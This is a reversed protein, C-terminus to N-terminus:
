SFYEYWARKIQTTNEFVIIALQRLTKADFGSNRALKVEPELWFKAESGSKFVHIHVPELPNGENSYFFFKFGDIRFVTPM